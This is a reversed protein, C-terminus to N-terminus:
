FFAKGKCRFKIFALIFGLVFSMRFTTTGAKAAIAVKVARQREREEHLTVRVM